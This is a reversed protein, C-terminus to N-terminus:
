FSKSLNIYGISRDTNYFEVNENRGREKDVVTGDTRVGVTFSTTTDYAYSLGLIALYSDAVRRGNYNWANVYILGPNFSFKETFNFSAFMFHLVSYDTLTVGNRNTEFEHFNKKFRPIYSLTIYNNTRYNFSPSLEIATRLKDTDKSTESTPIVGIISPTFTLAQKYLSYTKGILSLRSDRTIEQRGGTFNKEGSIFLQTRYDDNIRYTIYGEAIFGSSKDYSDQKEFNSEYGINARLTFDKFIGTRNRNTLPATTLNQPIAASNQVSVEDVVETTQTQTQTQGTSKVDQGYALSILLILLLYPKM